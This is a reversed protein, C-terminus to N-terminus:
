SLCATSYEEKGAEVTDLIVRLGWSCYIHNFTPSNSPLVAAGPALFYRSSGAGKMLWPLLISLDSGPAMEIWSPVPYRMNPAFRADSVRAVEGCGVPIADGLTNPVEVEFFAGYNGSFPRLVVIGSSLNTEAL